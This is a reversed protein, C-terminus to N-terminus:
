ENILFEENHRESRHIFCFKNNWKIKKRETKEEQDMMLNENFDNEMHHVLTDCKNCKSILYHMLYARLGTKLRICYCLCVIVILLIILLVGFGIIIYKYIIFSHNYENWVRTISLTDNAIPFILSSNHDTKSNVTSDIILFNSTLILFNLNMAKMKTEVIFNESVLKGSIIRKGLIIKCKSSLHIIGTKNLNINSNNTGCSLKATQKNKLYFFWVNHFLEQFFMEGEIKFNDMVCTTEHQSKDEIDRIVCDNVMYEQFQIDNCILDSTHYLRRKCFDNLHKM